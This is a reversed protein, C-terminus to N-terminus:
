ESVKVFDNNRVVLKEQGGCSSVTDDQIAVPVNNITVFQSGPSIAAQSNPRPSVIAKIVPIPPAPKPNKGVVPLHDVAIQADVYKSQMTAIMKGNIKCFNSLNMNLTGAYTYEATGSWEPPPTGPLTGSCQHVDTITITEGFVAILKSM